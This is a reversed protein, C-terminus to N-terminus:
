GPEKCVFQNTVQTVGAVILKIRLDFFVAFQEVENEIAGIVFNLHSEALNESAEEVVDERTELFFCM